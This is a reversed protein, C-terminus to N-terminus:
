QGSIYENLETKSADFSFVDGVKFYNNRDTTKGYAFKAFELKSAEYSFLKCIAVVQDTSVCNAGLITKATSLKTEEFSAKKISEKASNFSGFDMPYTCNTGGSQPAATNGGIPAAGYGM